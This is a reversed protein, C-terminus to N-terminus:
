LDIRSFNAASRVKAIPLLLESSPLFGAAAKMGAQLWEDTLRLPARRTEGWNARFIGQADIAGRRANAAGKKEALSCCSFSWSM